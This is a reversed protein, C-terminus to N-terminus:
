TLHLMTSHPRVDHASLEDLGDEVYRSRFADCASAFLIFTGRQLALIEPVPQPAM